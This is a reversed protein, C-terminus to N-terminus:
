NVVIEVLLHKNSLRMLRTTGVMKGVAVVEFPLARGYDSESLKAAFWGDADKLQAVNAYFTDWLNGTAAVEVLAAKDDISLPRLTVHRGALTPTERWVSM